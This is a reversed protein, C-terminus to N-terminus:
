EEQMINLAKLEIIQSKLDTADTFYLKFRNGAKGCEFSNPKETKSIVVQEENM